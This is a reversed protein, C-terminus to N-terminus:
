YKRTALARIEYLEHRDPSGFPNTQRLMRWGKHEQRHREEAARCKEVFDDAVDYVLSARSGRDSESESNTRIRSRAPSPATIIIASTTSGSTDSMASSTCGQQSARITGGKQEWADEDDEDDALDAFVDPEEEDPPLTSVWCMRTPDFIMNGVKRAGAAFSGVPSGISSGTLHTILAPRTSTGVVTDFDRLVQDNGEWRLTTPNWKMEGVVKPGSASGLHRILTPKRRTHGLVPSSADKKKKISIETVSAKPFEIRGTRRLTNTAPALAGSVDPSAVDKRGKKRMTGTEKDKEKDSTKSLSGVPGRNTAKPQVRFRGEKDRDTPLDDFADLETGDGYTRQRKPRRLLKPASTSPILPTQTQAARSRLSITSPPRPLIPSTARHSPQPAPLTAVTAPGPFISSLAPRSKMRISTPMTLRLAAPNSSPTSPRTPPVIFDLGHIRSTSSTHSKARSAATPAEYRALKGSSPGATVVIGSGSAQSTSCEMLSSLSAKRTLGKRQTAPPTPPKLGSHSKQGRLSGPKPSLFTNTPTPPAASLAEKYTLARTTCLPRPPPSSSLKIRQLQRASSIPPNVPSKARDARMRSPPRIPLLARAPASKSRNYRQNQKANVLRSPSFDDDDEILLGMEFDDEPDPSAVKIRHDTIQVQKKLELMKKLHKASQTSEFLGSPVVLGELESENEDCDSEETEHLSLSSVSNSSSSADALGLSSYADSSQSSSTQDGWELSNKSSRHSLSLPALSLRTLDSPLAFASEIDEEISSPLPKAVLKPLAAIKITSVGEEDEEDEEEQCTLPPRITIMNGSVIRSFHSRAAMGAVVAKAKAGGTKGLDMEIDWDIEDDEDDDEKDSEVDLSRIHDGDPLDFDADPWEERAIPLSLAPITSM